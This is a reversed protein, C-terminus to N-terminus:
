CKFSSRGLISTIIIWAVSLPILARALIVMTRRRTLVAAM